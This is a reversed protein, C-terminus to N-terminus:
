TLSRVVLHAFAGPKTELRGLVSFGNKLYYALPDAGCFAHLGPIKEDRLRAVFADLLMKGVGTGRVSAELNVHLHAPFERELRARAPAPFREEVALQPLAFRTRACDRFAASNPCGTLYGVVKGEAEAVFAWEPLLAQYPGIWKEAFTEWRSKDIPNGNDGTLCCLERIRPWDANAAPRIFISPNM